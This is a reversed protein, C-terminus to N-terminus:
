LDRVCRIQTSRSRAYDNTGTPLTNMARREVQVSRLGGSNTTGMHLAFIGGGSGDELQGDQTQSWYWGENAASLPNSASNQNDKYGAAPFFIGKTASTAYWAGQLGSITKNEVQGLAALADFDAKTPTRWTYGDM